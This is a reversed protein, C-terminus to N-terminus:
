EYMVKPQREIVWELFELNDIPCYMTGFRLQAVGALWTICEGAKNHSQWDSTSIGYANEGCNRCRSKFGSM